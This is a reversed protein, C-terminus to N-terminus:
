LERKNYGWTMDVIMKVGMLTFVTACGAWVGAVIKDSQGKRQWTPAVGNVAVGQRQFFQQKELITNKKNVLGSVFNRRQMGTASRVVPAAVRAIVQRQM